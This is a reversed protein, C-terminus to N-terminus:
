NHGAGGWRIRASNQVTRCRTAGTQVKGCGLYTGHCRAKVNSVWQWRAGVDQKFNRGAAGKWVRRCGGAGEQVEDCGAVGLTLWMVGLKLTALGDSHGNGVWWEIVGQEM